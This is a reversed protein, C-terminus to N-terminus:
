RPQAGRPVPLAAGPPAAGPPRAGPPPPPQNTAGPQGNPNTPGQALGIDMENMTGLSTRVADGRFGTLTATWPGNDPKLPRVSVEIRMIGPVQMATVTQQWHWRANAFDVDGDSKGKTPLSAALRTTALQNLAVWQAFSRDRMIMVSGASNGLATLLGAMGLAVVVLAVLVEVLTFGRRRKDHSAKTDHDAKM